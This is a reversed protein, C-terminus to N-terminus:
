TIKQFSPSTDMKFKVGGMVGLSFSFYILTVLVELNTSFSKKMALVLRLEDNSRISHRGNKIQVGGM